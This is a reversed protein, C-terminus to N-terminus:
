RLNNSASKYNWYSFSPIAVSFPVLLSVARWCNLGKIIRMFMNYWLISNRKNCSFIFMELMCAHCYRLASIIHSKNYVNTTEKICKRSYVHLMQSFSLNDKIECAACRCNRFNYLNYFRSLKINRLLFKQVKFFFINLCLFIFAFYLFMLICNILICLYLYLHASVFVRSRNTM